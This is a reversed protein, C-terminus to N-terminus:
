GGDLSWWPQFGVAQDRLSKRSGTGARPTRGIPARRPWRSCGSFSGGERRRRRSSDIQDGTHSQRHTFVPGTDGRRSGPGHAGTGKRGGPTHRPRGPHPAPRRHCRTHPLLVLDAPHLALVRAGGTPDLVALDPHQQAVGARRPAGEEVALEVRRTSPRGAASGARIRRGRRCRTRRWGRGRSVCHEGSRELGPHGCRPHGRVLGALDIPQASQELVVAHNTYQRHGADLADVGAQVVM